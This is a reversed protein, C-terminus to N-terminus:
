LEVINNTKTKSEQYLQYDSKTNGDAKATSTKPTVAGDKIAANRANAVASKNAKQVFAIISEALERAKDGGVEVVKKAIDAYDNKDFGNEAFLTATEMEAVKAAMEAYRQEKEALEAQKKEDDSMKDDVQKKYKAAEGSYKDKLGKYKEAEARASDRESIAKKYEAEYDITPETNTDIQTTANQEM